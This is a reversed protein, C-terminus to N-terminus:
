GEMLKTEKFLEAGCHKNNIEKEIPSIKIIKPFYNGQKQVEIIMIPHQIFLVNSKHSNDLQKIKLQLKTAVLQDVHEPNNAPHIAAVLTLFYMVM